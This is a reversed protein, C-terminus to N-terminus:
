AAPFQELGVALRVVGFGNITLSKGTLQGMEQYIQELCVAERCLSSRTSM